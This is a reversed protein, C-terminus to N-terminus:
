DGEETVEYLIGNPPINGKIGRLQKDLTKRILGFFLRHLKRGVVDRKQWRKMGRRETFEPLLTFYYLRTIINHTLSGMEGYYICKTPCADVCAPQLGAVVREACMNCKEAVNKRPNIQISGLTCAQICKSCSKGICLEPNISVVGDQRRSIAKKPCAEVCPASPCNMCRMPIFDTRLSDRVKRPGLAVTDIWKVSAPLNHEQKCAVECALCGTCYELDIFLYKQKVALGGGQLNQV